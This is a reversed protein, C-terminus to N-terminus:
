YPYEHPCLVGGISRFFERIQILQGTLRPVIPRGRDERVVCEYFYGAPRSALSWLGVTPPLKLVVQRPLNAQWRYLVPSTRLRFCTAGGCHPTVMAVFTQEGHTSLSAVVIDPMALPAFGERALSHAAEQLVDPCSSTGAHGDPRPGGFLLRDRVATAIPGAALEASPDYLVRLLSIRRAESDVVCCSARPDGDRPLGVSGPNVVLGSRARVVFPLHTHGTVLMESGDPITMRRAEEPYLYHNLPHKPSGHLLGISLGDFEVLRTLPLQTLFSRHAQERPNGNPHPEAPAAPWAALRAADHNGLVAEVRRRACEELVEDAHASYGVFDGACLIRSVGRRDLEALVAQLASYNAHIDAVVGLKV